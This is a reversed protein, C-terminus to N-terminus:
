NLLHRTSSAREDPTIRHSALSRRLPLRLPPLPVTGKHLDRRAKAQPAASLGMGGIESLDFFRSARASRRDFSFTTLPGDGGSSRETNLAGDTWATAKRAVVRSSAPEM